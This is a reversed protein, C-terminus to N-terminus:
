VFSYTVSVYLKLNYWLHRVWIIHLSLQRIKEAAPQNKDDAPEVEEQHSKEENAFLAVRQPQHM